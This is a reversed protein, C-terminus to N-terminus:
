RAYSPIVQRGEERKQRFFSRITSNDSSLFTGGSEYHKQFIKGVAYVSIGGTVSLMGASLAYGVIPVTKFSSYLHGSFFVPGISGALSILIKSAVLKRPVPFDYVRALDGIMQVEFAMIAIVDILPGPVFGAALALAVYEQIVQTARQRRQALQGDVKEMPPHLVVEPVSGPAHNM